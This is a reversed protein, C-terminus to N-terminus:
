RPVVRWCDRSYAEVRVPSEWQRQAIAVLNPFRAFLSRDLLRERTASGKLKGPVLRYALARLPADLQNRRAIRRLHKEDTSSVNKEGAILRVVKEVTELSSIVMPWRGTAQDEPPEMIANIAEKYTSVLTGCENPLACTGARDATGPPVFTIVPKQAINAQLGTTCGNQVLCRSRRIWAGADGTDAILVNSFPKFLSRYFHPNEQPHPRLCITLEPYKLALEAILGIFNYLMIGENALTAYREEDTTFATYLDSNIVHGQGFWFPNPAPFRTNFLVYDKLGRTEQADYDAFAAAYEPRYLEFNISGIMHVEPPPRLQEFYARQFEGWVLVKDDPAMVTVDARRALWPLWEDPGEGAFIASEEDHYWVSIGAVKMRDYFTMDHPPFGRFFNKGIYIGPGPWGWRDFFDSVFVFTEHGERALRTALFARSMLERRGVEVPLYITSM